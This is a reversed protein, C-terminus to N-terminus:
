CEPPAAERRGDYWMELGERRQVARPGRLALWVLTGLIRGCSNQRLKRGSTVVHQRLVVFRGQRKIAQSFWVEESAFYREDFGGAAQFVDRRCFMFCGAAYGFARFLRNLGHLMIRAYFPIRGDFRVSSGGGAAGDRVAQIAAALTEPVIRTDADLFIYLNGRAEKAGANRAAAIHRLNVNVVNAGFDRAV